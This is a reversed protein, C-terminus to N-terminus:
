FKLMREAAPPLYADTFVESAPPLPSVDFVKGIFAISRELRATEVASIGNKRVNPTDVALELTLNLRDIETEMNLLPDRKQLSAIAAKKDAIVANLGKITVRIFKKVIEPNAQAYDRSVIISSGYLDLGHDKFNFFTIDERRMGLAKLNLFSTTVFGAIADFNGRAFQPDQLDISITQWNIKSEDIGTAQAFAPFLTRGGTTLPAGITKGELDKPTNIGNGKRTMVSAMTADYFVFPCILKRDTKANFPIMTNMESFGFQYAGSAVNGLTDPGGYGRDITIDLGEDAFYGREAALTWVSQQAQWVWDLRLKIPIRGDAAAVPGAFVFSQVALALVPALLASCIARVAHRCSM